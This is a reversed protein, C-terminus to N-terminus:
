TKRAVAAAIKNRLGHPGNPQSPRRVSSPHPAPPADDSEGDNVNDAPLPVDASPAADRAEEAVGPDEEESVSDQVYGSRTAPAPARNAARPMATHAAARQASKAAAPTTPHAAATAPRATAAAPRAAAPRAAAPRAAVPRAARPPVEAGALQDEDGGPEATPEEEPREEAPPAQRAMPRAAAPRATTRAAPAAAARSPRRVCEGRPAQEVNGQDDGQDDGRSRGRGSRRSDRNVYEDGYAVAEAKRAFIAIQERSPIKIRPEKIRSFVKDVHEDFKDDETFIACPDDRDLRIGKTTKTAWFNNGTYLDMVSFESNRGGRGYAACLEDFTGSYLIFEWPFLVEAQPFAKSERDTDIEYLHPSVNPSLSTFSTSLHRLGTM